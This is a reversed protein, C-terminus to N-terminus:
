RKLRQWGGRPGVQVELKVFPLHLQRPVGEGDVLDVLTDQKIRTAIRKVCSVGGGAFLHLTEGSPSNHSNLFQTLM